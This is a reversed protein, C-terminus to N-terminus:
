GEIELIKLTDRFFMKEMADMNLRPLATGALMACCLALGYTLLTSGVAPWLEGTRHLDALADFWATPPPLTVSTPDGALQWGTLLVLVPLLGRIM